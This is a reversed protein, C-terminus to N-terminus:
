HPWVARGEGLGLDNYLVQEVLVLVTLIALQKSVREGRPSPPQIMVWVWKTRGRRWTCLSRGQNGRGGLEAGFGGEDCAKVVEVERGMLHSTIREVSQTVQEVCLWGSVM